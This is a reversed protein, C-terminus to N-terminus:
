GTKLGLGGVWLTNHSGFWGIWFVYLLHWISVCLVAAFAGFSVSFNFFLVGVWSGDQPQRLLLILPLIEDYISRLSVFAPFIKVCEVYM